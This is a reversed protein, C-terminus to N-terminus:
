KFFYKWPSASPQIYGLKLLEAVQKEIQEMELPSYRFLPRNVPKPDGPTSIVEPIKIASGGYPAADTFVTPYDHVIKDLTEQLLLSDPGSPSYPGQTGTSPVEAILLFNIETEDTQRMVQKFAHVSM